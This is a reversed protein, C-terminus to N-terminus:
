KLQLANHTWIWHGPVDGAAYCQDDCSITAVVGRGADLVDVIEEWRFGDTDEVPLRHGKAETSNICSGDELTIPTNDSCTLRINSASILTVLNQTSSRIASVTGTKYGDRTENLLLLQDGVTMEIARKRVMPMFSRAAVSGLGGGGGGGGGGGITTLTVTTSPITVLQTTVAGQNTFGTFLRTQTGNGTPGPDLQTIRNTSPWYYYLSMSLDAITVDTNANNSTAPNSPISITLNGHGDNTVTIFSHVAFYYGYNYNGLAPYTNKVCYTNNVNGGLTNDYTRLTEATNGIPFRYVESWYQYVTAPNRVAYRTTWIETGASNTIRIAMGGPNTPNLVYNQLVGVLVHYGATLSIPTNTIVSGNYTISGIFTSDIFIEGFNDACWTFYYVGTTPFYINYSTTWGWVDIGEPYSYQGGSTNTTNNPWVAYNVMFAPWKYSGDYATYQPQGALFNNDNTSSYNLHNVNVYSTGGGSLTAPSGDGGMGIGVTLYKNGNIVDYSMGVVSNYQALPSIWNAINYNLPTTFNVTFTASVTTPQQTSNGITISLTTSYAGSSLGTPVFTVTPGTLVSTNSLTFNTANSISATYSTYAGSANQITFIQSVVTSNAWSITPLSPSLTFSFVPAVYTAVTQYTNVIKSGTDSNSIIIFSSSFSGGVNGSYALDFLTASGSPAVTYPFTLANTKVPVVNSNNNFNVATITLPSNGSNSVIFTQATSQELSPGPGANWSYSHSTPTISLVRTQVPVSSTQGGVTLVPAPAPIAGVSYECTFTNVIQINTALGPTGPDQLAATAVVQAVNPDYSVSITLTNGNNTYSALQTTGPVFQKHGYVLSQISKKNNDLLAAVLGNTGSDAFGTVYGIDFTLQGGLNFFYNIADPDSYGTWDFTAAASVTSWDAAPTPVIDTASFTAFQGLPPHNYQNVIMQDLKIIIEDVWDKSIKNGPQPALNSTIITSSNTQHHYITDLNIKLVTWDTAQVFNGANIGYGTTAVTYGYGQSGLGLISNITGNIDNFGPYSVNHTATNFYVIDVNTVTSFTTM